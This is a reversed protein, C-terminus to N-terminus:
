SISGLSGVTSLILASTFFSINEYLERVRGPETFDSDQFHRHQCLHGQRHYLERRHSMM